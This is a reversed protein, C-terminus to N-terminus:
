KMYVCPKSNRHNWGGSHVPVSFRRVAGVVVVDFGSPNNLNFVM